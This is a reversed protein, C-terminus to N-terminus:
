PLISSNGMHFASALRNVELLCLRQQFLQLCRQSCLCLKASGRPVLKKWVGTESTLARATRHITVASTSLFLSFTRIKTHTHTHTQTHLSQLRCDPSYGAAFTNFVHTNKNKNKTVSFYTHTKNPHTHAKTNPHSLTNVFCENPHYKFGTAQHQPRQTRCENCLVCLSSAHYAHLIVAASYSWISFHWQENHDNQTTQKENLMLIGWGLIMVAQHFNAIPFM